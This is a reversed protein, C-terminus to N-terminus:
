ARSRFDDDDPDELMAAFRLAARGLYKLTEPNDCSNLWNFIDNETLEIEVDVAIIKNVKESVIRTRMLDESLENYRYTMINGWLILDRAQRFIFEYDHRRM